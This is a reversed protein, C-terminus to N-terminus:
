MMSRSCLNLLLTSVRWATDSRIGQLTPVTMSAIHQAETGSLSSKQLAKSLNDTVKLITESLKLSFLFMFECMMAKLGIIRAKVDPDLRVPSELCENWLGKMVGYNLLISELIDGRM